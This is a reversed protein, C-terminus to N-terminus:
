LFIKKEQKKKEKKKVVGHLKCSRLERALSQIRAMATFAHLGLCQVALSSGLINEIVLQISYDLKWAMM